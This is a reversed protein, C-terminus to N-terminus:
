AVMAVRTRGALEHRLSVCYQHVQIEFKKM